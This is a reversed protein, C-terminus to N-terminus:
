SIRRPRIWGAGVLPAIRDTGSGTGDEVDGLYKLWEAGLAFKAKIGFVKFPALYIAKLKLEDLDTEYRGSKDTHVGRLENTVKLWPAIAYGGETEFSHKGASRTLNFYRYRIDQFNVAATPNSADAGSPAEQGERAKEEPMQAIQRELAGQTLVANSLCAVALFVTFFRVGFRGKERILTKM